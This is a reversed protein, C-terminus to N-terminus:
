QAFRYFRLLQDATASWTANTGNNNVPTSVAQWDVLNTSEEIQFVEGPQAPWSLTLQNGEFAISSIM